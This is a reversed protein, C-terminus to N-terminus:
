RLICVGVDCLSVRVSHCDFCIRIVSAATVGISETQNMLSTVRIDALLISIWIPRRDRRCMRVSLIGGEGAIAKGCQDGKKRHTEEGGEKEEERAQHTGRTHGAMCEDIDLVILDGIVRSLELRVTLCCSSVFPSISHGFPLPAPDHM